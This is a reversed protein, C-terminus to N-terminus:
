KKVTMEELVVAETYEVGFVANYFFKKKIKRELKWLGGTM